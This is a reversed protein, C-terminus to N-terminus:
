MDKILLREGGTENDSLRGGLEYLRCRRLLTHILM